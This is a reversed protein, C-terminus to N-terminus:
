PALLEALHTLMSHFFDELGTGTAHIRLRYAQRRRPKSSKTKITTTTTNTSSSSPATPRSADDELLIDDSEGDIKSEIAVNQQIVSAIREMVSQSRPVVEEDFDEDVDRTAQDTKGLRRRRMRTANPEQAWEAIAVRLLTKLQSWDRPTETDNTPFVDSETSSASSACHGLALPCLVVVLCLLTLFVHRLM